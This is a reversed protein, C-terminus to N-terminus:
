GQSLQFGNMFFAWLTKKEYFPVNSSWSRMMMSKHNPFCYHKLSSDLCFYAKAAPFHLENWATHLHSALPDLPLAVAPVNQLKYWWKHKSVDNEARLSVCLQQTCWWILMKKKFVALKIMLQSRESMCTM